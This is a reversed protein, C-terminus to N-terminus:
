LLQHVDQRTPNFRSLGGATSVWLNGNHDELIASVSSSPLGDSAYFATFLEREPDFRLLGNGTAAWIVGSHDITLYNNVRKTGSRVLTSSSERDARGTRSPNFAYATFRGAAPDFRQLTGSTLWLAGNSDQAIGFWKRRRHAAPGAKWSRFRGSAPDECRNLGDETGAWLAGEHDLMLTYVIDHSLSYPDAPNHRFATFRRTRPDYRNM